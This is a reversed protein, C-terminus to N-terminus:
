CLCPLRHRIKFSADTINIFLKNRYLLRQIFHIILDKHFLFLFTQLIFKGTM